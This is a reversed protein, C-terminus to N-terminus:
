KLKAPFINALEIDGSPELRDDGSPGLFSAGSCGGGVQITM